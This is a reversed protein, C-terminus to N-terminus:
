ISSVIREKMEAASIPTYDIREASVCISQPSVSVYSPNDHVHGFVNAYPMNRNVYLPEHSLLYFGEYLIPWRSCEEFGFSRWQGATFHGDHNGTILIKRGKLLSLLARNGAEEYASFDGLVYVTDEDGVVSNWRDTLAEDMEKASAFPRNEYAIIREDGFHLDAIFFDM